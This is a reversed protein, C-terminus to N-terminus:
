GGLGNLMLDAAAAALEDITRSGDGSKEWAKYISLATYGIFTGAIEKYGSDSVFSTFFGSSFYKDRMWELLDEYEDSTFLRHYPEERSSIEEYFLRVGDHLDAKDLAKLAAKMSEVIDNGIDYLVDKKSAYYKYFTNSQVPAERLIDEVRIKDFPKEAILSLMANKIDRMTKKSRIDNPNKNTNPKPM